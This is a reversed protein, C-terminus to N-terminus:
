KSKRALLLSGLSLMIITAPEPVVGGECWVTTRDAAEDFSIMITGIGLYPKVIGKNIMTQIESVRNYKVSFSGAGIEIRSYMEPWSSQLLLRGCYVTGDRLRWTSLGSRYGVRWYDNSIVTGGTQDFVAADFTNDYFHFAGLDIGSTATVTGGTMKVLTNKGATSLSLVMKAVTINDGEQILGYKGTLVSDLDFNAIDGAGPTAISWNDPNTFLHDGDADTFSIAVASAGSSFCLLLSVCFVVVKIKM